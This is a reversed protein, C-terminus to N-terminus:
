KASAKSEEALCEESKSYFVSKELKGTATNHKFMDIQIANEPVALMEKAREINRITENKTIEETQDLPRYKERDLLDALRKENEELVEFEKAAKLDGRARKLRLLEEPSIVREGGMSTLQGAHARYEEMGESEPGAERINQAKNQRVRNRMLEQGLKKDDDIRDMIRKIIETNKNYYSVKKRNGEFSGLYTMSGFSVLQLDGMALEGHKRCYEDYQTNIETQTGQFTEYVTLVWDIYPKDHYITESLLRLKEYNVDIYYGFRHFTDSPPIHDLGWRVPSDPEVPYLYGRYEEMKEPSALIERLADALTENRLACLVANYANHNSRCLALNDRAEEPVVPLIRLEAPQVRDPDGSSDVVPNAASKVHFGPQFTLISDMFERVIATANEEPLCERPAITLTARLEALSETRDAAPISDLYQALQASSHEFENGLQQAGTVMLHIMSSYKAQAVQANNTPMPTEEILAVATDDRAEDAERKMVKAAALQATAQQVYAELQELSPQRPSATAVPLARVQDSAKWETLMQYMFSALATMTFRRLYQERLNFCSVVAARSDDPEVRPKQMVDLSQLLRNFTAESLDADKVREPNQIVDELLRNFAAEDLEQTM